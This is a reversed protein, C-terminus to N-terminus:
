SYGLNVILENAGPAGSDNDAVGTTGAITIATTFEIGNPISLVFGAGNTDGQSPVPFTLDPVTTGVTVSAAVVNYLKLYLPTAKLNIATIWYVQGATGKVQDESEDVDINKYLTTGGSTRAGSIGVDGILNTGAPQAAEVATKIASMNVDDTAIVVRQSGNSKNGSNKDTSSGGIKHLNINATNVESTVEAGIIASTHTNTHYSIEDFIIGALTDTESDFAVGVAIYTIATSDWGNGTIGSYDADGVSLAGLEFIAATLATDPLRWENYNSSDTGIRLFTYAVDTLSPIYFSGQLLDHASVNGLDITTLTKQIGAFITNATGNAKDFTLADTGSIHKKTTALNTTDDSLVTWGTTANFTDFTHHQEVSSVLAGRSDLQLIDYDGDASTLHANDEVHKGLIAVGTDTAGVVGDIAKGLNTAGTGPIVSTIASSGGGSGTDLFALIAAHLATNTGAVPSTVNSWDLTVAEGRENSIDIIQVKNGILEVRTAGKPFVKIDGNGMNVEINSTNDTLTIAM